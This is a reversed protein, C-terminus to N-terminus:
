DGIGLQKMLWPKILPLVTTPQMAQTHDMHSGELREIDWGHQRLQAANKLLQGAIDVTEHGFAEGYVITDKEGAFALRPMNLQSQISRDDFGALSEYLTVFQQTVLPNITVKINNWDIEEPAMTSTSQPAAEAQDALNAMAQRHTHRTVALMEEYPGGYPPFGGMILSDLRDTRIALQLGALALWSYGYYSFRSINMQDAIHLFDNAIHDATLQKAPHQFLHGEYDFYLVQFADALGDVLHKGLEPDVGWLKLTEAEEGYVSRKAVPLMIIPCATDGALGVEIESHNSLRIRQM